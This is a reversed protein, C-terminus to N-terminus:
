CVANLYPFPSVASGGGPHWEFHDHPSTGRADGSNGVYGIITGTSVSGLTGLRSLHANYVYGQSGFVKVALGGLGNSAGSATGPFPARIPTGTPAFIDNGQHLHFGGAYRPAGFDDTYSHPQDVPCVLLVGGIAPGSASGAAAQRALAALRRARAIEKKRKVVLQSVIAQAEQRDQNMQSVVSQEAALQEQLAGQQVKLANRQRLQQRQLRELKVERRSLRSKLDQIRVILARDSQTARDVVELRTSFDSLSTSGLIFEMDLGGGTQFTIRARKDLQAQTAVLRKAAARIERQVTNSEAQIVAIASEVQNMQAVIADARARLGALQRQGALVRKEITRLKARAADLQQKTDATATPGILGALFLGAAVAAAARRIAPARFRIV